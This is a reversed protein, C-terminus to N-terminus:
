GNQEMTPLGGNDSVGLSGITHLARFAPIVFAEPM